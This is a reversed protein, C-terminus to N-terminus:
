YMGECIPCSPQRVIRVMAWEMTLDDFMLLRGALSSNIGAILKLAEAAQATGVMDVLSSSAGITVCAVDSAPKDPPFPCAYCLSGARSDFVSIQGDFHIATDSVLPM